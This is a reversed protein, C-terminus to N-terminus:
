ISKFQNSSTLEKSNIPSVKNMENTSQVFSDLIDYGYIYAWYEADWLNLNWSNNCWFWFIEHNSIKHSIVSSNCYRTIEFKMLYLVLILIAWPQLNWSINCWFWFIEHNCIEHSIVGSYFYRMTASKMLYWVLILIDWPQLNWSINRWFWFIEHNCIEHSIVGSAFYKMTVFKM